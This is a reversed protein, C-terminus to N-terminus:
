NGGHCQGFSQHETQIPAGVFEFGAPHRDLAGFWDFEVSNPVGVVFLHNHPSCTGICGRESIIRASWPGTSTACVYPFAHLKSNKLNAQSQFTGPDTLKFRTAKADRFFFANELSDGALLPSCVTIPTTIKADYFTFSQDAACPPHPPGQSPVPALQRTQTALLQSDPVARLTAAAGRSLENLGAVGKSQTFTRESDTKTGAQKTAQAPAFGVLLMLTVFSCIIVRM